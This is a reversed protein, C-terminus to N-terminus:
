GVILRAEEETLGLRTLVAQRQTEKAELQTKKELHLQNDLERQELEADTMQLIKVEGTEVNHELKEM